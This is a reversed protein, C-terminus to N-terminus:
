KPKTTSPPSVVALCYPIGSHLASAYKVNRVAAHMDRLATVVPLKQQLELEVPATVQPTEPLRSPAKVDTKEIIHDRRIVDVKSAM